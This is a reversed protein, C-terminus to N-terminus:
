QSLATLANFLYPLFILSHGVGNRWGNRSHGCDDGYRLSYPNSMISSCNQYDTFIADNADEIGNGLSKFVEFHVGVIPKSTYPGRVNLFLLAFSYKGRKGTQIFPIDLCLPGFAGVLLTQTRWASRM